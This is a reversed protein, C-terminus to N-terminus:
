KMNTYIYISKLAIKENKTGYKVNTLGRKYMPKQIILWRGTKWLQKLRIKVM